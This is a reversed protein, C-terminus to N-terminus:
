GENIGVLANRVQVLVERCETLCAQVDAPLGANVAVARAIQNLNAALRALEAWQQRNIAPVVQPLRHLAAARLYEGRRMRVLERREDLVALEADSLRVSVTHTRLDPVPAGRRARRSEDIDPM